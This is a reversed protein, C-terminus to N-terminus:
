RGPNKKAKNDEIQKEVQELMWCLAGATSSVTKGTALKMGSLQLGLQIKKLTAVHYPRMMFNQQSNIKKPTECPTEITPVVIKVDHIDIGM